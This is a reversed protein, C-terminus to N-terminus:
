STTDFLKNPPALMNRLVAVQIRWFMNGRMEIDSAPAASSLVLAQVLIRCDITAVALVVPRYLLKM